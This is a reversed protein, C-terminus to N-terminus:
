PRPMAGAVASSSEARRPIRSRTAGGSTSKGTSMCTSTAGKEESPRSSGATRWTCPCVCTPLVLRRRLTMLMQPGNASLCSASIGLQVDVCSDM